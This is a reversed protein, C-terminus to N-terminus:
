GTMVEGGSVAIAQGTIAGAGPQALWLVTQAVEEPTVLRGQPNAAALRERAEENSHGTKSVITAVARALLPTDTYGPCVANVTVGTRALELALSRTLGILGHKAAVYASVYPYGILGATSAINIVRGAGSALLDPLVAQTVLFCGTLNVALTANWGELTVKAFPASSVAGANNVLIDVPGLAKRARELGAAVSAPGTVDFGDIVVVKQLSQAVERLKEGNRGALSLHAGAEAFGLAITAGIGSGAGTVLVHRGAFPATM